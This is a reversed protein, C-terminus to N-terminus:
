GGSVAPGSPRQAPHDTRLIAGGDCASLRIQGINRNPSRAPPGRHDNSVGRPQGDTVSHRAPTRRWAQYRGASPDRTRALERVPTCANAREIMGECDVYSGSPARKTHSRLPTDQAAVRLPVDLARIPSSRFAVSVFGAPTSAPPAIGHPDAVVRLVADLHIRCRSGALM